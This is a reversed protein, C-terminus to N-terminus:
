KKAGQRKNYFKSGRTENETAEGTGEGDRQGRGAGKKSRHLIGTRDRPEISEVFYQPFANRYEKTKIISTHINKASPSINKYRLQIGPVSYKVIPSRQAALRIRPDDLLESGGQGSSHAKMDIMLSHQKSTHRHPSNKATGVLIGFNNVAIGPTLKYQGSKHTQKPSNVGSNTGTGLHTTPGAITELTLNKINYDTLQLGYANSQALHARQRRVQSPSNCSSNKQTQTKSNSKTKSVLINLHSSVMPQEAGEM